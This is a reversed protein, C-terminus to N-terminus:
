PRPLVPLTRPAFFLQQLQVLMRGDMAIIIWSLTGNYHHPSQGTPGGTGMIPKADDTVIAWALTPGFGNGPHSSSVLMLRAVPHTGIFLHGDPIARGIKLAEDLSMTAQAPDVVEGSFGLGDPLPVPRLDPTSAPATAPTSPPASPTAIPTAAPTRVPVASCGAFAVASALTLGLVRQTTTRAQM